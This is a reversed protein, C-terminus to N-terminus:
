SSGAWQELRPLLIKVAFIKLCAAIPIALILGYLGAIAGGIFVVILVTVASLNTSDSQVWPTLLWGEIFQVIGYVLTPWVLVAMWDLGTANQGTTVDLYKLLLALIWAVGAAYPIISLVGALLGLLFWYPVGVLLWGVAFMIAMCVAVVFRGRFFGAVAKDMDQGIDLIQARQSAPLYSEIQRLLPPFSWAFFFFYIPILALSVIMYTTTGIFTGIFGFAEGAGTFITQLVSIPDQQVRSAVTNVQDTVSGVNLDYRNALSQIYGPLKQALTVAQNIVIPGLWAAFGVATFLLAGLLAVITFSRPVHWREHAYTILPNFVYALVLAILVPTFISRLYYGFWVAVIGLGIWFLDQVAKIQWLHLNAASPSQTPPSTRQSAM